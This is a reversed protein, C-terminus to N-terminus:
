VETLGGAEGVCRCLGIIADGRWRKEGSPRNGFCAGADKRMNAGEADAEFIGDVLM